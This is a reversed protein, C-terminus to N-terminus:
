GRGEYGTDGHNGSPEIDIVQLDEKKFFTTKFMPNKHLQSPRAVNHALTQSTNPSYQHRVVSAVLCAKECAIDM